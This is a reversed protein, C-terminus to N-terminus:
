TRGELGSAIADLKRLIQSGFLAIAQAVPDDSSRLRLLELREAVAGTPNHNTLCAPRQRPTSTAVM